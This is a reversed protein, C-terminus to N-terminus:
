VGIPLQRGAKRMYLIQGEIEVANGQEAGILQANSLTWEITIFAGRAPCIVRQWNKSSTLGNLQTTPVVSNFFEDEQNTTSGEILNQFKRNVPETDNYDVYVNLTIAGSETANLLVDIFGLQINEAEQLYNFKKSVVSFGDRVAIRGVSFYTGAEVFVPIDFDDTASNYEYIDFYDKNVIVVGFIRDNIAFFPDTSTIRGIEIVDDNSLNHDASFIRVTALGGTIDQIALSYSNGTQWDLLFVFGQQNGAVNDPQGTQRQLWTIKQNEWKHTPDPGPFDSWKPSTTQTFQGLATLSDTFIAWSDNEYNYLLRRNPFTIPYPFAEPDGAFPYTWFALKEQFDRLGQIRKLGQNENNFNFVLDPIKIDIRQSKFSDCEVIGKDGIGMLSTDFQISSFTSEVGLESNVREIQFPAISRGTYRLQWTSSECYIVVNDRVFGMSIINQSTPIDLYGGRGRIDDRWAETNVTTVIASADSFPNGISAWRIRQRYNVSTGFTAGEYTNATVLRGRFPFMLLAKYLKDGAANITPAFDVWSIGNTYRIPDNTSFNTVWFIKLNLNGVWYNTTWFFDSNTGTWTTGTIFELWGNIFRYAYVPDFAITEEANIADLERMALNMVPLGPFYNFTITSAAVGSTQTLVVDGTQYNITGSNGPTISTLTGDGQDTFTVAGVVIVVSGAEIEATTYTDTPPVTDAYINFPWTGAVSNGLSVNEFVRKLRGLEGLGQKRKIKERFIFANELKPYADNPLISEVRSQVLGTENGSIYTPQYGAM